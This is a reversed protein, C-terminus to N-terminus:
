TLEGGARLALLGLAAITTADKIQGDSVMDCIQGFSFPATIMDQETDERDPAGEKLDTALFLHCGQSCFGYAGYLHGIRTLTSAVLGTEETLEARAVTEAGVGPKTEWAGQPFEWFRQGVPYRFQQVLQFRGDAHRPAILAYDEKAVVGYIGPSGDPFRVNDERVTMWRNRYVIQSNEQTIRGESM